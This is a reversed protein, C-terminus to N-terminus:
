QQCRPKSQRHGRLGLRDPEPQKTVAYDVVIEPWRNHVADVGVQGGTAEPLDHRHGPRLIEIEASVAVWLITRGAHPVTNAVEAIFEVGRGSTGSGATVTCAHM